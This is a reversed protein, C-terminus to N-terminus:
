IHCVQPMYDTSARNNQEQLLLSAKLGVDMSLTHLKTSQVLVATVMFAVEIIMVAAKALM